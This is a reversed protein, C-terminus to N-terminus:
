ANKGLISLFRIQAAATDTYAMSKEIVFLEERTMSEFKKVLSEWKDNETKSDYLSLNSVINEAAERITVLKESEDFEIKRVNLEIQARIAKRLDYGPSDKYYIFGTSAIKKKAEEFKSDDFKEFSDTNETKWLHYKTATDLKAKQIYEPAEKLEIEKLVNQSWNTDRVIYGTKQVIVAKLRDIFTSHSDESITPDNIVKEFEEPTLRFAPPNKDKDILIKLARDMMDKERVVFIGLFYHNTYQRLEKQNIGAHAWNKEWQVWETVKKILKKVGLRRDDLNVYDLLGSDEIKRYFDKVNEVSYCDAMLWHTYSDIESLDEIKAGQMIWADGIANPLVSFWRIQQVSLISADCELKWLREEAEAYLLSNRITGESVEIEKALERRSLGKLELMQKFMHGQKVINHIGHQNRKYTQRMAEFDDVDIIECPVENLDCDRAARWGHEGDVIVYGNGNPRVIIPKPLRGLHEVEKVLETYEAGTMENPNYDNPTLSGTPLFTREM